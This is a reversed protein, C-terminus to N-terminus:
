LEEEGEEVVEVAVEVGVGVEDDAEMEVDKRKGLTSALTEGRLSDCSFLICKDVATVDDGVPCCNDGVGVILRLLLM